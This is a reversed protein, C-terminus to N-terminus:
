QMWGQSNTESFKSERGDEEIGTDKERELRVGERIYTCYQMFGSAGHSAWNHLPTKSREGTEQDVEYQYHQLCMMGRDCTVDNICIRPLMARTASIQLVISTNPVVKVVGPGPYFAKAQKAITNLKPGLRRAAQHQQDADHPLWVHKVLYRREQLIQLFYTIDQGSEETYFVCNHQNGLQQWVWMATVDSDGLDFSATVPKKPDYKIHPGVREDQIAARIENAFIAGQLVKRTKGEWVTLYEDYDKRRMEEMQKRLFQPFFPNDRYSALIVIADRPPDIVFIKYTDDSSLEPNLDIWVESGQGFPGFPADRRVTPLVVNWKSAPIHAAETVWLIDIGEMSRFSNVNNLGVFVFTTGNAGRIENDLVEYFAPVDRGNADKHAHYNLNVIQDSLLKHVSDKISKQVERACVIFLKKHNGLILLARAISWSAGKGRGGAVTKFPAPTFLPAMKEPIPVRTKVTLVPPVDKTEHM